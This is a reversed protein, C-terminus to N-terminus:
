GNISVPTRDIASVAPSLSGFLDNNPKILLNVGDYEAPVVPTTSLVGTTDYHVKDNGYGVDNKQYLSPNVDQWLSNIDPKIAWQRRLGFPNELDLYRCSPSANINKEFYDYDLDSQFDLSLDLNASPASTLQCSSYANLM